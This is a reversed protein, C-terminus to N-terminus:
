LYSACRFKWPMYWIRKWEKCKPIITPDPDVPHEDVKVSEVAWFLCYIDDRQCSGIPLYQYGAEGCNRGWSNKIIFHGGGSVNKDVTYGVISLAHGGGTKASKADIKVDCAYMSKIVSVALYLPKNENLKKIALQLSNNLYETKVLYTYCASKSLYRDLPSKYDHMWYKDETICKGVGSWTKIAVDCSYTQYDNWIHRESLKVKNGAMNEIVAALAHATCTGGWQQVVYNDRSRLDVGGPIFPLEGKIKQHSISKTISLPFFEKEPITQKDEALIGSSFLFIIMILFKMM